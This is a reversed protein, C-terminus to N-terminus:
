SDEMGRRGGNVRGVLFGKRVSEIRTERELFEKKIGMIMGEIAKGKKCRRETGQVGWEYGKPLNRKMRKWDKESTWTESLVM